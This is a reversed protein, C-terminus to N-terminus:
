ASLKKGDHKGNHINNHCKQCVILTKRKRAIMKKQWAAKVKGNKELNALKKIHHVEIKDHSGCLECEQANLRQILESRQSNWIRIPKDSISVWKNWKLSIGGFYAILPRKHERDQSIRIVKRDGDDTKITAGYKRYIKTCTTKYKKALTKVLSVETVYRLKSLIHLNYAMTYYQVIGRYEAQYQSVISYGNDITRETLHIPKGKKMYKKCKEQVVKTPIRLGINGNICRQGRHDHKSDEHLIHVEYGLFKAKQNRANTILTKNANLELKLENALFESVKEKIEEAEKKSGVLGLLFDDAYRVYWLRRFNPDHPDRSPINQAQKSLEKASQWDGIKKAESVQYTLLVYPPNTKRREGCTHTPILEQEVYKDLRDLVINSFIPGSISGQPVGSLTSNLKWDEIYGAKLLAEILRIFRNDQFTERIIGLLIDHDIKNFCSCLDGEIFWKTGKGKKIVERLATHCGRAPRFGHSQTSFNPEYYAEMISRIVEQLLKDSWNPLGLPRLKGDKKNIYVRKVPTWRYKEYRLANIINDIKELSMGDVTESTVGETMAGDNRYLKDYARLYLDKQYLLRYADKVPLKHQGYKRIITLITEANRM